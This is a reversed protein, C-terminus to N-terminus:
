WKLSLWEDYMTGIFGHLHHKMSLTSKLYIIVELDNSLYFHHFPWCLRPHGPGNGLSIIIFIRQCSKVSQEGFSSPVVQFLADKPSPTQEFSSGHKKWPSIISVDHFFM